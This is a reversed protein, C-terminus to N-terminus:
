SPSVQEERQSSPRRFIQFAYTRLSSLIGGDDRNSDGETHAVDKFGCSASRVIEETDMITHTLDTLNEEDVKNLERVFRIAYDRVFSRLPGKCSFSTGFQDADVTIVQCETLSHLDGCHMWHKAWLVPEAVWQGELIYSYTDEQEGVSACSTDSVNRQLSDRPGSEVSDSQVRGVTPSAPEDPLEHVGLHYLLSGSSLFTVECAMMGCQFVWEDRALSMSALAKAFCRADDGCHLFFPHHGLHVSFTEHKLEAWLPPSLLSLLAVDKEQVRQRHKEYAFECYGQIKMGVKQSVGWDRLYRRLMWFQRAEDNRLHRLQAMSATLASVFSSFTLMAVLLVIVAFTRERVNHPTVEMSAPTFQTLSWHLATMYRYMVTRSTMDYAHIWNIDEDGWSGVAYWSCAVVHNAIVLCVVIMAVGFCISCAETNIQDQVRQLIRKFKLVRILRMARAFRLVRFTRGLRAASGGPALSTDVFLLAVDLSIITIDFLAWSKLYHVLISRPALVLSRGAQYGTMLSVLVDVMWFVLSGMTVVQVFSSPDSDSGFANVFPIAIVDYMLLFSCLMDWLIRKTSGPHVVCNQLFCEEEMIITRSLAARRAHELSRELNATTNLPNRRMAKALSKIDEATTWISRVRFDGRSITARVGRPQPTDAGERKPWEPTVLKRRLRCSDGINEAPSHGQLTVLIDHGLACPKREKSRTRSPVRRRGRHKEAAESWDATPMRLNKEKTDIEDQTVTPSAVQSPLDITGNPERVSGDLLSRLRENEKVLACVEREHQYVVNRVAGLFAGREEALARPCPSCSLLWSGFEGQRSEASFSPGVDDTEEPREAGALLYRQACVTSGLEEEKPFRVLDAHMTNQRGNSGAAGPVIAAFGQRAENAGRMRSDM